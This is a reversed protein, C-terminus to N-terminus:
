RTGWQPQSHGFGPPRTLFGQIAERDKDAKERAKLAQFREQAGRAREADGTKRYVEALRYYAASSKPDLLVAQELEYRAAVLMDRKELVTGLETHAEASRGDLVIARELHQQAEALDERSSQAARVALIRGYFYEAWADQQQVALYGAFRQEMKDQLHGAADYARGLLYYVQPNQPAVDAARLLVQAADVYKGTLYYVAGWGLLMRTSGPFDKAASAFAQLAQNLAGWRVFGLAYDYRYEENQPELETARRLADLSGSRNGRAEEVDGLLNELEPREDGRLMRTLLDAAQDEAGARHYALALNYNLEYSEPQTQRMRELQQSALKYAGQAVLMAAVEMRRPDNKELEGDLKALTEAAVVHQKLQLQTQLLSALLGADRPKIKLAKNFQELASEPEHDLLSALGLGYLSQFDDPHSSLILRFQQRADKLHKQQLYLAGLAQHAATLDPKFDLAKNLDKQAADLDSLALESMGLLCEAEASSPDIEVAHQAAERAELFNGEELSKKGRQFYDTASQQALATGPFSCLTLPGTLHAVAVLIIPM